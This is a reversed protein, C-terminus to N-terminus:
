QPEKGKNEKELKDDEYGIILDYFYGVVFGPFRQTNFYDNDGEQQRQVVPQLM